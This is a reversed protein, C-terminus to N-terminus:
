SSPGSDGVCGHSITLLANAGITGTYDASVDSLDVDSPTYFHWAGGGAQTGAYTGGDLNLTASTVNSRGGPTLIWHLEPAEDPGCETISDLGRVGNWTVTGASAPASLAVTFGVVAALALGAKLLKNMFIAKRRRM